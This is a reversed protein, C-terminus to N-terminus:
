RWVALVAGMLILAILNYGANIMFYRIPRHEHMTASFLVVAVFGLWNFFGVAAGQGLTAAEAYVVAHVLVFAMVLAGVVDFAVARLMGAKMTAEDIGVATRWREIFGIPSYWAAGLAIRILAAVVLAWYNIPVEHM